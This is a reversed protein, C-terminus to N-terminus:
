GCDTGDDIDDVHREQGGILLCRRYGKLHEIGVVVHEDCLHNRVHWELAITLGGEGSCDERAVGGGNSELEFGAPYIADVDVELLM